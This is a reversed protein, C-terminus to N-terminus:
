ARHPSRQILVETTTYLLITARNRPLAVRRILRRAGGRHCGPLPAVADAPGPGPIQPDIGHM